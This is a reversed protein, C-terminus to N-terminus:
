LNWSPGLNWSPDLMKWLPPPPPPTWSKELPLPPVRQNRYFGESKGPPPPPPPPPSRVGM